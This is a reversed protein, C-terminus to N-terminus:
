RVVRLSIEQLRRDNVIRARDEARVWYEGVRYLTEARGFRPSLTLVTRDANMAYRGQRMRSDGIVDTYRRDWYRGNSQLAIQRGEHAYGGHNDLMIATPDRPAVRRSSVPSACAALTAFCFALIARKMSQTPLKNAGADLVAALKLGEPRFLM